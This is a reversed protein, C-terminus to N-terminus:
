ELDISPGTRITADSHYGEAVMWDTCARFSASAASEACVLAACGRSCRADAATQREWPTM